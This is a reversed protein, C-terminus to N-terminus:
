EEEWSAHLATDVMAAFIPHHPEVHNPILVRVGFETKGEMGIVYIDTYKGIEPDWSHDYEWHIHELDKLNM